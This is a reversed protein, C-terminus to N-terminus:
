VNGSLGDLLRAVALLAKGDRTREPLADEEILYGDRVDRLRAGDESRM